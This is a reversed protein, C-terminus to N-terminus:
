AKQVTLQISYYSRLQDAINIGGMHYNYDNIIKLISLVKCISNRFVSKIKNSNTSTEQSWRREKNIRSEEEEIIYITLLMTVPNNDIWLLAL